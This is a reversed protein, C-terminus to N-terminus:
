PVHKEGWVSEEIDVFPGLAQWVKDLDRLLCIMFWGLDTDAGEIVEVSPVVKFLKFNLFIM